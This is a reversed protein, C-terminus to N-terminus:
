KKDNEPKNKDNEPKNKVIAWKRRTKNPKPCSMKKDNEPKNKDNEPKNKFHCKKFIRDPQFLRSKSTKSNFQCTKEFLKKTLAIKLKSM